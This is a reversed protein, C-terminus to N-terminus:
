SMDTGHSRADTALRELLIAQHLGNSAPADAVGDHPPSTLM